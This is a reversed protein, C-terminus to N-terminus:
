ELKRRKQTNAAQYQKAIIHSVCMTIKKAFEIDIFENPGHANSHPGLVGTIVFQTKPFMKGLMGMFPISGGEGMARFDKGFFITSATSVSELLWPTMKPVAWGQSSKGFKLTAAAGYPVNKTLKERLSKEVAKPEAHPPLRLSIVLTTHARLVNGAECPAPMGDVGTYSLTPRWTRNLLAVSLDQEMPVAGKHFPFESFVKEGLTEVMEKAYKKHEEPIECFAEDILLKGTASDEIRDLLVRLIRFSSPVIGSATGSHVGEDLIRVELEAVIMGRLSTTLWMQEYNCAGSDLCVVLGVEGIRSKLKTMYHSLDPSGSEEGGEILIVIRAHPTKQEKLARCIKRGMVDTVVLM